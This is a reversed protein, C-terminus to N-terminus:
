PTVYTVGIIGKGSACTITVGVFEITVDDGSEGTVIGHYLVGPTGIDVTAEDNVSAGHGPQTVTIASDYGSSPTASVCTLTAVDDPCACEDDPTAPVAAPLDASTLYDLGGCCGPKVDDVFTLLYRYPQDDVPAAAVTAAKRGDRGVAIVDTTGGPLDTLLNVYLLKNTAGQYVGNIKAEWHVPEGSTYAALADFGTAFEGVPKARQVLLTFGMDNFQPMYASELKTKFRGQNGDPNCDNDRINEWYPIGTYNQPAFRMPGINPLETPVLIYGSMSNPFYLEEYPAGEVSTWEPNEESYVGQDGLDHDIWQPVEVWDLLAPDWKYRRPNEIIKPLFNGIRKGMSGSKLLAANLKGPDLELIHDTFEPNVHFIHEMLEESILVRHLFEGNPGRGDAHMNAGKAKKRRYMERFIGPTITSRPVHGPKYRGNATPYGDTAIFTPSNKFFAERTWDRNAIVTNAGLNQLHARAITLRAHKDRLQELCVFPSQFGTRVLCAEQRQQGIKVEEYSWDCSRGHCEDSNVWRGPNHNLIQNRFTIAQHAAPGDPWPRRKFLNRWEDATEAMRTITSHFKPVERILENEAVQDEPCNDNAM